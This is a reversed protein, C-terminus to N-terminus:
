QRRRASYGIFSSAIVIFAFGIIGFVNPSVFLFGGQAALYFTLFALALFLLAMLARLTKSM